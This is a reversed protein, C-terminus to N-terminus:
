GKIIKVVEGRRSTPFVWGAKPKRAGSARMKRRATKADIKVSKAIDSLTLTNKPSKM